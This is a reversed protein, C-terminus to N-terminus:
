DRIIEMCAAELILNELVNDSVAFEKAIFKVIKSSVLDHTEQFTNQWIKTRIINNHHIVISNTVLYNKRM